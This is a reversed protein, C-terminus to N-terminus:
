VVGSSWVAFIMITFILLFLFAFFLIDAIHRNKVKTVILYITGYIIGVFFFVCLTILFALGIIELM